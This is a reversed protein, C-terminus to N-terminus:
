GAKRLEEVPRGIAYFGVRLQNIYRAGNVGGWSAPSAPMLRRGLTPKSGAFGVTQGAILRATESRRYFM